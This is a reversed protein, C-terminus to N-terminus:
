KFRDRSSDHPTEGLFNLLNLFPSYNLSTVHQFELQNEDFFEGVVYITGPINRSNFSNEPIRRTSDWCRM